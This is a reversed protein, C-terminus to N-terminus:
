ARFRGSLYLWLWYLPFLGIAAFCARAILQGEALGWAPYGFMANFAAFAYVTLAVAIVVALAARERLAKIDPNRRAARLLLSAAPWDVVPALLLGLALIPIM